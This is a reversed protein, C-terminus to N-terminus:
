TGTREHKHHKRPFLLCMLFGIVWGTVLLGVPHSKVLASLYDTM